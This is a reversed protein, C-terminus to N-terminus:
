KQIICNLINQDAICYMNNNYLIAFIHNETTILKLSYEDKNFKYYNSWVYAWYKCDHSDRDYIYNLELQEHFEFLGLSFLDNIDENDNIHIWNPFPMNLNNSKVYDEIM